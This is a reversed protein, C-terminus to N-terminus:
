DCGEHMLLGHGVFFPFGPINIEEAGLLETLKNKEVMKHLMYIHSSPCVTVCMVEFLFFRVLFGPSRDERSEVYSHEARDACDVRTPPYLGGTM